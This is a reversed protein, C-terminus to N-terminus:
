PRAPQVAFAKLFVFAVGPRSRLWESLKLAAGRAGRAASGQGRTASKSAASFTEIRQGNYCWVLGPEAPIAAGWPPPGARARWTRFDPLAERSVVVAFAQLGMGQNLDVAERSGDAPYRPAAGPAPREDEDAPSWVDMRGDPGFSLLYSYAASSLQARLFVQDGLCADFTTEGLKGSRKPNAGTDSLEIELDLVALEPRPEVAHEVRPLYRWGAIVLAAAAATLWVRRGIPPDSPRPTAALNLAEILEEASSYRSEPSKALLKRLVKEVAEPVGLEPPLPPVPARAHAKSLQDRDGQFPPSGTLLEYWACGLGYLDSAPTAASADVAQEPACYAPSGLFCGSHTLNESGRSSAECDRALGWDIVCVVGDRESRVLNSSKVDRHTVGRSHAHGLGLAAQRVCDSAEKWSLPGLAKVRRALNLGPIYDVVLVSAEGYRLPTRTVAINVHGGLKAHVQIERHFREELLASRAAKLVVERKMGRHWALAVLGMGGGDRDLFGIPELQHASLWQRDQVLEMIPQSETEHTSLASSTPPEVASITSPGPMSDGQGSSGRPPGLESRHRVLLDVSWLMAVVNADTAFVPSQGRLWTAPDNREGRILAETYADIVGPEIPRAGDRRAASGTSTRSTM